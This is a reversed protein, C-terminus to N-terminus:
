CSRYGTIVFRIGDGTDCVIYAQPAGANGAGFYERVPALSHVFFNRIQTTTLGTCLRNMEEFTEYRVLRDRDGIFETLSVLDPLDAESLKIENPDAGVDRVDNTGVRNADLLGSTNAIVYSFRGRMEGAADRIPHWYGGANKFADEMSYPIYDMARRAVVRAATSQTDNTDLSSGLVGDPWDPYIKFGNTGDLNDDLEHIAAALGAWIMHQAQLGHRMNYAGEREIRMSLSFAAAALMMVALLGLVIIIAIGDDRKKM